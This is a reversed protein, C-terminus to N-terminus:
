KKIVRLTKTNAGQNVIVNYAGAALKSGVRNTDAKEVLRGQMDYVKVSMAGKASTEITFESSSPNPYAKASFKSATASEPAIRCTAVKKITLARTGSSGTGNSGIVSIALTTTTVAEVDITISNTGQGGTIVAETGGVAWAYTVGFVSPVQVTITTTGPCAPNYTPIALTPTTISGPTSPAASTVTLTRTTASTGAGNVAQVSLPLSFVNPAVGDFNVTLVTGTSTWTTPTSITGSVLTAGATVNVGAPLTWTFSTAEAGQTAFPTATLTLSTSEGVYPGVKTVVTAGDRLVLATPATPLARALVLKRAISNGAGNLGFVKLELNGIGTAGNFNVTIVNTPTEIAPVDEIAYVPVEVTGTNVTSKVKVTTVTSATECTVGSPLVWAYSTSTAGQTLFPTATLTFQISTGTYPGVKTIKALSSLNPQSSNTLTLATPAGPVVRGLTLTRATSLGCGGASKVVIPLSGIGAPVGAFDVTIINSTGGSLQNVGAPLTWQYSAATPAVPATLTFVTSTGMYPGVKTIKLLDALSSFTYTAPITAPVVPVNFHDTTDASTLTL